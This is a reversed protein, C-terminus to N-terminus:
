QLAQIRDYFDWDWDGSVNQSENQYSWKAYEQFAAKDPDDIFIIGQEELYARDEAERGSQLEDNYQRAIEMAELIIGQDEASFSNWRAINISPWVTDVVHDTMVIYKTPEYFKQIRDTPLPNDQGEIVGTRLGMYVEGFSMPTPNGGLAKGLAIWNPSNPTRLKVGNMQDPHRVEGVSEVLNLERTGLYFAALPRVGVNESVDDVIGGWIGADAYVNRMHEYGTFTYVANIQGLYPVWEAVWGAAYYAMDLTGERAAALEGEQTFIQGGTYLDASIRGDSLREVEFKFKQMARSQATDATSISSWSLQITEPEAAAPAAEEKDAGAFAFVSVLAIMMIILVVRKKM